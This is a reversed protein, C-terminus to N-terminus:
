PTGEQRGAYARAFAQLAAVHGALRETLRILEHRTNEAEDILEETRDSDREPKCILRQLWGFTATM